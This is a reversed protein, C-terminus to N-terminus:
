SHIDFVKINLSNCEMDTRQKQPSLLLLSLNLVDAVHVVHHVLLQSEYLLHVTQWMKAQKKQKQKESRSYSPLYCKRNRIVIPFELVLFSNWGNSLDM